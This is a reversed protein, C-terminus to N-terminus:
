PAGRALPSEAYRVLLDAPDRYLAVCGASLLDEEAFGGSLLGLTRLGARRASLADWPSDGIAIARDPTAGTAALAAEFLDPCPKSRAADDATTVGDLLSPEIGLLRRNWEVEDAKGSSALAVSPNCPGM